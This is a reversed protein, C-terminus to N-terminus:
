ESRLSESVNSKMANIIQIGITISLVVALLIVPM